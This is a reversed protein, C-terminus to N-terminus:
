KEFRPNAGHGEEEKGNGSWGGDDHKLRLSSTDGTLFHNGKTSSTRADRCFVLSRHTKEDNPILKFFRKFDVSLLSCDRIGGFGIWYGPLLIRFTGIQKV